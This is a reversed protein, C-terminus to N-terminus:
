ILPDLISSVAQDIEMLEQKNKIAIENHYNLYNRALM